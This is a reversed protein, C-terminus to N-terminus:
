KSSHFLLFDLLMWTCFQSFTLFDIL